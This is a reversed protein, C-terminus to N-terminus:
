CRALEILQPLLHKTSISPPTLQTALLAVKFDMVFLQAAMGPVVGVSVQDCQAISTMPLYV